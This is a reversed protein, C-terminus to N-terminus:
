LKGELSYADKLKMAATVMQLSKPAWFFLTQCQKWENNSFHLDFSCHPIVECWYSHGDFFRCVIFALSWTYFLFEGTSSTPIYVLLFVTHLHRLFSSSFRGYSGSIGSSPMYGSFVVIRFSVHVGTNM